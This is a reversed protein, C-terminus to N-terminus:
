NERLIKRKNKIEISKITYLFYRIYNVHSKQSISLWKSHNITKLLQKPRHHPHIIQSGTPAQQTPAIQPITTAFLYLALSWVSHLGIVEEGDHWECKGCEEGYKNISRKREKDSRRGNWMTCERAVESENCYDKEM